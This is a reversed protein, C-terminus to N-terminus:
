TRLNYNVILIYGVKKKNFIQEIRLFRTSHIYFDTTPSSSVHNTLDNMTVRNRNKVILHSFATIKCVCLDCVKLWLCPFLSPLFTMYSIMTILYVFSDLIFEGNKKFLCTIQYTSCFYNKLRYSLRKSIINLKTM